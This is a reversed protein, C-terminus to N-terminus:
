RSLSVGRIFTPITNYSTKVFFPCITNSVIVQQNGKPDIITVYVTEQYHNHHWNTVPQYSCKGTYEYSVM